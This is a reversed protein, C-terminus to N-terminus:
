DAEREDDPNPWTPMDAWEKLLATWTRQGVTGTPALGTRRQFERLRRVSEEDHVGTVHDSTQLARDGPKWGGDLIALMLQVCVVDSKFAPDGPELVRMMLTVEAEPPPM